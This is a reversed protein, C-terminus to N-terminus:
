LLICYVLIAWFQLASGILVFIHFVSHMYRIKKKGGISYLLAGITYAIGGSLILLFGKWTLAEITPRLALIIAWGIGIYCIMSLKRYKNHDIATFVVAVASLGWVIGFVTWAAAPSHERLPGLLIPTYTGGILFYITCHDLVQLVKKAMGSHLGHYVSSMTYLLILSSGYVAAATIRFPNKSKVAFIVCLVLAVVGFAAGIIHTVTNTIEEGKTYDPLTRESLKTRKM